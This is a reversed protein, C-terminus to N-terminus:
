PGVTSPLTLQLGIPTLSGQEAITLWAGIGSSTLNFTDASNNQVQLTVPAASVSIFSTRTLEMTTLSSSVEYLDGQSSSLGFKPACAGVGGPVGDVSVGFSVLYTGQANLTIVGTAPDYVVAGFSYDSTTFIVNGGPIVVNSSPALVPSCTIM